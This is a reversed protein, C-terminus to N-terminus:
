GRRKRTLVTSFAFVVEHHQVRVAGDDLLQGGRFSAADLVASSSGDGRRLWAIFREEGRIEGVSELEGGYTGLVQESGVAFVQVTVPLGVMSALESFVGHLDVDVRVFKSPEANRGAISSDLQCTLRTRGQVALARVDLRLAVTLAALDDRGLEDKGASALEDARRDEADSWQLDRGLKTTM